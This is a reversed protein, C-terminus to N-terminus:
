LKDLDESAERLMQIIKIVKSLKKSSASAPMTDKFSRSAIQLKRINTPAKYPKGESAKQLSLCQIFNKRLLELFRKFKAYYGEVELLKRLCESAELFNKFNKSM